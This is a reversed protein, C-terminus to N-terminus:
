YVRKTNSLSINRSTSGVLGSTSGYNFDTTSCLQIGSDINDFTYWSTSKTGSFGQGYRDSYNYTLRIPSEDSDTVVWWSIRQLYDIQSETTFAGTVIRGSPGWNTSGFTAVTESYKYPSSTPGYKVVLSINQDNYFGNSPYTINYDGVPSALNQPIIRFDYDFTFWDVNCKSERYIRSVDVRITVNNTGSAEYINDKHILDVSDNIIIREPRGSSHWGGSPMVLNWVDNTADGYKSLVTDNVQISKDTSLVTRM